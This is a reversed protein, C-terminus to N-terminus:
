YQTACIIYLLTSSYRKITDGMNDDNIESGEMLVLDMVEAEADVERLATARNVFVM